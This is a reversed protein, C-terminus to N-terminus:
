GGEAIRRVLDQLLYRPQTSRERFRKKIRRSPLGETAQAHLERLMDGLQQLEDKNGRRKVQRCISRMMPEYELVKRLGHQRNLNIQRSTAAFSTRFKSGNVLLSLARRADDGKDDDKNAKLVTLLAYLMHEAEETELPALNFAHVMKIIEKYSRTQSMVYLLSIAPGDATIRRRNGGIMYDTFLESLVRRFDSRRAPAHTQCYATSLFHAVSGYTSDFRIAGGDVTIVCDASGVELVQRIQVKLLNDMVGGALVSIPQVFVGHLRYWHAAGFVVPRVAGTPFCEPRKWPPRREDKM